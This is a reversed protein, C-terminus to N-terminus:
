DLWRQLREWWSPPPEWTKFIQYPMPETKPEPPPAYEFLKADPGCISLHTAGNVGRANVCTTELSGDVVSRRADPHGCM